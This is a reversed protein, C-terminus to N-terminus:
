ASRRRFLRLLQSVAVYLNVFGLGTIAGRFAPEEWIDELAPFVGAFYNVSWYDLWPFVVLFLGIEFSFLAFCLILLASPRTQPPAIEVAPDPTM